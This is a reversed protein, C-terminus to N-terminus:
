HTLISEIYEISVRRRAQVARRRGLQGPLGLLGALQGRLRARAERGRWARLAELSIQAQARLIRPWYRRWLAGPLDKGVVYIFNRGNYYSHTLGGGTASLKHYV